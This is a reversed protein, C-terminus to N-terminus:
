KNAKRYFADVLIAVVLIIFAVGVPWRMAVVIALLDKLYETM